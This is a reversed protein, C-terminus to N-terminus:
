AGSYGLSNTPATYALSNLVSTPSWGHTEWYGISRQKEDDSLGQWWGPAPARGMAVADLNADRRGAQSAVGTGMFDSALANLDFRQPMAGQVAGANPRPNTLSSWTTMAQSLIPDQGAQAATELYTDWNRPGKLSAGLNLTDLGLRGRQMEYEQAQQHYKFALDKEAQEILAERYVRDTEASFRNTDANQRGTEAEYRGTEANYRNTDANQRSVGLNGQAVKLHGKSVDLNGSTIGRNFQNQEAAALEAARLRQNYDSNPDAMREAIAQQQARQAAREAMDQMIITTLWDTAM